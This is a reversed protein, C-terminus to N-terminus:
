PKRGSSSIGIVSDINNVHYKELDKWLQNLDYEAGEISNRIADDGGAIIGIIVNNYVGFTIPSQNM